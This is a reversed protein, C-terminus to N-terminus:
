SQKSENEEQFFIHCIWIFFFLFKFYWHWKIIPIIEIPDYFNNKNSYWKQWTKTWIIYIFWQLHTRMTGIIIQHSSPKHFPFPSCSPITRCVIEKWLHQCTQQIDIPRENNLQKWSDILFNGPSLCKMQCFCQLTNHLTQCAAHILKMTIIWSRWNKSLNLSGQYGRWGGM